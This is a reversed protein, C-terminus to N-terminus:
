VTSSIEVPKRKRRKYEKPSQRFVMKFCKTFYAASSFGVMYCIETVNGYHYELLQAARKLRYSRIYLQPSEGYFFQLKRYLSARSMYMNKCLKEVNFLPNSLNAELVQHLRIHFEFDRTGSSTEPVATRQPKRYSVGDSLQWDKM